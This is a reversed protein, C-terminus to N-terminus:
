CVHLSCFCLRDSDQPPPPTRRLISTQRSGEPGERAQIGRNLRGTKMQQVPVTTTTSLIGLSQKLTKSFSADATLSVLVSCFLRPANPLIALVRTPFRVKLISEFYSLQFGPCPGPLLASSLYAPIYIGSLPACQGRPWGLEPRCCNPSRGLRAAESICCVATGM